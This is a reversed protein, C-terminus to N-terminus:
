INKRVVCYEHNSEHAAQSVGHSCNVVISFFSPQWESTLVRECMKWETIIAYDTEHETGTERRKHTYTHSDTHPNVRQLRKIVHVLSANLSLFLGPWSVCVCASQSLSLPLDCGRLPDVPLNALDSFRKLSLCSLHLVVCITYTHLSSISPWLKLGLM